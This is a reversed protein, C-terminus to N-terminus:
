DISRIINQLPPYRLSRLYTSAFSLFKSLLRSSKRSRNYWGRTISIKKWKRSMFYFNGWFDFMWEIEEFSKEDGYVSNTYVLCNGGVVGKICKKYRSKLQFISVRRSKRLLISASVRRMVLYFDRTQRGSLYKIM